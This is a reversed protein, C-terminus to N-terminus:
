QFIEKVKSAVGVPPYLLMRENFKFIVLNELDSNILYMANYILRNGCRWNERTPSKYFSHHQYSFRNNILLYQNTKKSKIVRSNPKPIM